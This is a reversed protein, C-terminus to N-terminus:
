IWPLLSLEVMLDDYKWIKTKVTENKTPLQTYKWLLDLHSILGILHMQIFNRFARCVEIRTINKCKVAQLYWCTTLATMSYTVNNLFLKTCTRWETKCFNWLNELKKHLVETFIRLVYYGWLVLSNEGVKITWLGERPVHWTWRM